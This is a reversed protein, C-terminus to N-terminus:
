GETKMKRFLRAKAMAWERKVAAPSISLMHATEETMVGGFFRLEVNKSQMADFEALQKMAEDLALPDIANIASEKQGEGLNECEKM